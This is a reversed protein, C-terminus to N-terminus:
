AIDDLGMEKFDIFNGIKRNYMSLGGEFSGVWINNYNDVALSRIHNDPISGADYPNHKFTKFSKKKKDYRNLGGTYTGLWIYGDKDETISWVVNGSLRNSDGPYHALHNLKRRNI